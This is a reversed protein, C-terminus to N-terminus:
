KKYGWLELADNISNETNKLAEEITYGFGDVFTHNDATEICEFHFNISGRVLTIEMNYKFEDKNKKAIKELKEILAKM